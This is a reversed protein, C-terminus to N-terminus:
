AICEGTMSCITPWAVTTTTSSTWLLCSVCCSEQHGLAHHRPAPSLLPQCVVSRCSPFHMRPMRHSLLLAASGCTHSVQKWIDRKDIPGTPKGGKYHAAMAVSRMLSSGVKAARCMLFEKGRKDKLFLPANENPGGRFVLSPDCAAAPFAAHIKAPRPRQPRGMVMLGFWVVALWAAPRRRCGM